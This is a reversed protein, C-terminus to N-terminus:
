ESNSPTVTVEKVLVKYRSASYCQCRDVEDVIHLRRVNVPFYSRLPTDLFSFFTLRVEFARFVPIVYLDYHEGM